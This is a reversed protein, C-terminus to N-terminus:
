RDHQQREEEKKGTLLFVTFNREEGDKATKKMSCADKVNLSQFGAGIFIEKLHERDFGNHEIGTAAQHFKGDDPDLDAIAIQGGPVLANFFIKAINAIDKIHHLTMASVIVDVEPLAASNREMDWYVPDINEINSEVLKGKLVDLMGQSTDVAIVRQVYPLLSLAILGTGTGFDLLLHRSDLHLNERMAGAIDIAVKVRDKNQDWTKAESDFYRKM